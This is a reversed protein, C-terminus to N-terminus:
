TVVLRLLLECCRKCQQEDLALQILTTILTSFTIYQIILNIPTSVIIKNVTSGRNAANFKRRNKSHTMTLVEATLAYAELFSESNVIISSESVAGIPVNMPIKADLDYEPVECM